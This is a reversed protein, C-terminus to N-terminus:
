HILWILTMDPNTLTSEETDPTVERTPPINFSPLMELNTSRFNKSLSALSRFPLCIAYCDEAPYQEEYDAQQGEALRLPSPFVIYRLDSTM